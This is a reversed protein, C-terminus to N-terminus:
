LRGVTRPVCREISMGVLESTETRKTHRPLMQREGRASPTRAWRRSSAPRESCTRTSEAPVPAQCTPCTGSRTGNGHCGLVSDLQFAVRALYAELVEELERVHKGHVTTIELIKSIELGTTAGVRRNLEEAVEIGIGAPLGVHGVWVVPSAFAELLNELHDITRAAGKDIM